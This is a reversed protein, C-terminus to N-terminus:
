SVCPPARPWLIIIIDERGPPWGSSSAAPMCACWDMAGPLGLLMIAIHSIYFPRTHVCLLDFIYIISRHSGLVDNLSSPMIEEWINLGDIEDVWGGSCMCRGAAHVEQSSSSFQLHIIIVGDIPSVWGSSEMSFPTGECAICTSEDVVFPVCQMQQKSTQRFHCLMMFLHHRSPGGCCCDPM